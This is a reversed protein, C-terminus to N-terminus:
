GPFVTPIYQYSASIHAIQNACVECEVVKAGNIGGLGALMSEARKRASEENEFLEEKGHEKLWGTRYGTAGGSVVCWVGWKEM